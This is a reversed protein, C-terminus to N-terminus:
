FYIDVYDTVNNGECNEMEQLRWYKRKGTVKFHYTGERRCLEGKNIDAAQILIKGEFILERGTSERLTGEIELYDTNTKSHQAGKIKRTGNKDAAGITATGMEEWSIWQLSLKHKGTRLPTLQQANVKICTFSSLLSLLIAKKM